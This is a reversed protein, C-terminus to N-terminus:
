DEVTWSGALAPARGVREADEDGVTDIDADLSDGDGAPLALSSGTSV